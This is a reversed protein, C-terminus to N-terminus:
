ANTNLKMYRLGIAFMDKPSDLFYVGCDSIKRLNELNLVINCSDIMRAGLRLRIKEFNYIIGTTFWMYPISYRLSPDYTTLLADIEGSINKVNAFRSLDIPQYFVTKIQKQSSWM